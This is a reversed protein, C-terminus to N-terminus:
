LKMILVGLLTRAEGIGTKAQYDIEILKNFIDKLVPLSFNRAQSIGKQVIFSHLKLASAISRSDFGRDMAQRVQILIKFQRIIMSLLYIDSTDAMLQEELLKMALAKNKSGVADTLAFISEDFQGRVMRRVDDLTVEDSDQGKKYNVLKDIESNILWLDKNLTDALISAAGPNVKAGRVTFESKIWQLLEQNTLDKFEPISYKQKGLFLFLEKKAKALKEKSTVPDWFVIVNENAKGEEMKKFYDLVEGFIDKGKNSFIDEIVIMRRRSFLSAPGVVENIEKIGTTKGDIVLLSSGSPDVDRSFKDKLERLKRRSRFADDGYIFIIM